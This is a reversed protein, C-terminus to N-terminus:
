SAVTSKAPKNADARPADTKRRPKPIEDKVDHALGFFQFVRIAMFTMDFEWWKHGARAVAPFAHHNNHWGEGYALLGVWWLNRSEDTTEYNRYGWLHTASNVLWTTHYAFVLRVCVGWLLMEMAGIGTVWGALAFLGASGFLWLPYTREIFQLMPDKVLDPVYKAYMKQEFDRGQKVFMWWLHAWWPGELPSHPDGPNDSQAHHVRHVAAWRLPTGEGALVGCMVAIFRGAPTMKFSRHSLLRHFGLCIGISCTLWHFVLCVGLATWSFYFPAAVAGVHVLSMWGLVSWDITKLDFKKPGFWKVIDDHTAKDHSITLPDKPPADADLQDDVDAMETHSPHLTTQSM